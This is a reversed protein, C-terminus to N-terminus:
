QAAQRGTEGIEAASKSTSAVQEASSAVQEASASLSQMEGAADQLRESQEAAGTSIEGISDRVETSARDVQEANDGAQQSATRVSEAFSKTTAITEELADLTTNIQKGVAQMSDNSGDPDVRRTLDGAAADDLVDRYQAAKRELEENMEQARESEAEAEEKAQEAERRAGEAQERADQMQSMSRRISDGMQDLSAYLQGIEDSRSTSLDVDLNGQGMEQARAALRRLSTVTNTGVTVGVLGLNIVALVLLGLIDSNIQDALAFADDRDTEVVLVWDASEIGSLAVLTDGRDRYVTEGGAATSLQEGELDPAEGDDTTSLATGDTSVVSTRVGEHSEAISTLQADLDVVYVLVQESDPIPSLVAIRSGSGASFPETVQTADDGQFSEVDIANGLDGASEGASAEVTGTEANLVHASVVNEPTQEGTLLRDLLATQEEATASRLESRDSTARVSRETSDLWIHLQNAEADATASLQQEVDESLTESADASLVFGFALMVVIAFALAVGLRAAYSGAITEPLLSRKRDTM